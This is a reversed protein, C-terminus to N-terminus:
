EFFAGFRRVQLPHERELQVAQQLARLRAYGSMKETFEYWGQRNGTLISGHSATKLANM